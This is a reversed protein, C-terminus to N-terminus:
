WKIDAEDPEIDTRFDIVLVKCSHRMVMDAAHMLPTRFDDRVAKGKLVVLVIDDDKRYEANVNVSDFVEDM